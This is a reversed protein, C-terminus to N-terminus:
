CLRRVVHEIEILWLVVVRMLLSLLLTRREPEVRVTVVRNAVASKHTLANTLMRGGGSRHADIAVDDADSQKATM